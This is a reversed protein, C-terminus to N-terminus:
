NLAAIVALIGIIVLYAGIVYALIRPKFFILLGVIISIIGAIFGSVEVFGHLM